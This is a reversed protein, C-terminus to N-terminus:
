DETGSKPILYDGFNDSESEAFVGNGSAQPKIYRLSEAFSLLYFFFRLIFYIKHLKDGLWSQHSQNESGLRPQTECTQCLRTVRPSDQTQKCIRLRTSTETIVQGSKALSQSDVVTIIVTNYTIVFILSLQQAARNSQQM